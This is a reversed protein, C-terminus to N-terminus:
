INPTRFEGSMVKRCFTTIKEDPFRPHSPHLSGPNSCTGLQGKPVMPHVLEPKSWQHRHHLVLSTERNQRTRYFTALTKKKDHCSVAPHFNFFYLVFWTTNKKKQWSTYIIYIYCVCVCKFVIKQILEPFFSRHFPFENPFDKGKEDKQPSDCYVRSIKCTPHKKCWCFAEPSFCHEECHKSVVPPPEGCVRIISIFGAISGAPFYLLYSKLVVYDMMKKPYKGSESSVKVWTTCEPLSVYCHFIVMKLLSYMKLPDM